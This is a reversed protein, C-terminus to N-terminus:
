ELELEEISITENGTYRDYFMDVIKLPIEGYRISIPSTSKTNESLCTIDM